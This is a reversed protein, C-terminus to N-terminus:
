QSMVENEQEGAVYPTKKSPSQSHSEFCWSTDKEWVEEKESMFLDDSAQGVLM